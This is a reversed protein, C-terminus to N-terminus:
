FRATQTIFDGLASFINMEYIKRFDTKTCSLLFECSLDPTGTTNFIHTRLAERENFYRECHLLYHEVTELQNCECLNNNSTGLKFQYDRLQNYGLRLNAINRYSITNPYDIQSRDTVKPKYRFLTRGTESSEWQRQWQSLGMKVAAQKIDAMTVVETDSKMAAAELSAEKALRDAEENGKINAHGPTWSIDVKINKQELRSIKQRIEAVTQKHQTPQWGLKLIGIASQSDSFIHVESSDTKHIEEAVHDITILIAVLEGLLISSYSSVPRKLCIPNDQYPM